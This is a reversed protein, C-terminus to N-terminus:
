RTFTPRRRTWLYIYIYTRTRACTNAHLYVRVDCRAEVVRTYTYGRICVRDYRM